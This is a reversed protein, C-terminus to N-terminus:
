LFLESNVEIHRAKQFSLELKNMRRRVLVMLDRVITTLLVYLLRFIVGKGHRCLVVELGGHM